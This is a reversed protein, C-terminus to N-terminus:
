PQHCHFNVNILEIDALNVGHRALMGTLLAEEVGAVSFGIKGGKLDALTKIPGDDLM